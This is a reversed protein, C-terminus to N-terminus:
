PVFAPIYKGNFEPNDSFILRAFRNAFAALMPDVDVVDGIKCEIGHNHLFDVQDQTAIEYNM